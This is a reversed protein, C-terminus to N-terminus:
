YLELHTKCGLLDNENKISILNEIPCNHVKSMNEQKDKPNGYDTSKNKLITKENKSM